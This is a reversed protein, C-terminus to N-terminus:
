NGNDAEMVFVGDRNEIVLDGNEDIYAKDGGILLTGEGTVSWTSGVVHGDNTIYSYGGGDQLWIWQGIEKNHWQGLYPACASEREGERYFVGDYGDITLSSGDSRIQGGDTLELYRDDTITYSQSSYGGDMSINVSGRNIEVCCSYASSEWKGLYEALEGSAEGAQTGESPIGGPIDTPVIGLKEAPGFVGDFESIGLGGDEGWVCYSKANWGSLNNFTKDYTGCDVTNGNEDYLAFLLGGSCDLWYGNEANNWIGAVSLNGEYHPLSDITMLGLEGVAGTFDISIEQALMAPDNQESSLTLHLVSGDTLLCIWDYTYTIDDFLESKNFIEIYNGTYALLRVESSFSWDFGFKEYAEDIRDVHIEDVMIDLQTSISTESDTVSIGTGYQGNREFKYLLSEPYTIQAGTLPETYTGDSEPPVDESSSSENQESQIDSENSIPDDNNYESSCAVLSISFVCLATIILILKKM